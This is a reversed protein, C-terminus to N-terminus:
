PIKKMNKGSLNVKLFTQRDTVKPEDLKKMSVAFKKNTMHNFQHINLSTKKSPSLVPTFIGTRAPPLEKMSTTYLTGNM